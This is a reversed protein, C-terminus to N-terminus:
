TSLASNGVLHFKTQQNPQYASTISIYGHRFKKKTATSVKLRKAQANGNFFFVAASHLFASCLIRSASQERFSQWFAIIFGFNQGVFSLLWGFGSFIQTWLPRSNAALEKFEASFVIDINVWCM